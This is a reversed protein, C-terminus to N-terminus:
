RRSVHTIWVVMLHCLPVVVVLVVVVVVVVVALVVVVLHCPFSAHAHELLLLRDKM